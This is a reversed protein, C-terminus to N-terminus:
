GPVPVPFREMFYCLCDQEIIKKDLTLMSPMVLTALQIEGDNYQVFRQDNRNGSEDIIELSPQKKLDYYGLTTGAPLERFNYYEIDEKLRIDAPTDGFSFTTDHPIKVTAVTHFLHMDDTHIPQEPLHDLHLCAEIFETAHSVGTGDDIRGCELTVSPCIKALAMSQVGYPRLFYVVTRSFLTALHFFSNDLKNICAYHPNLGTNNHLDMSIFPNRAKIEALVNQMLQHEPSDGHIRESPWVRNYDLQNDLMRMGQAAAEVNGIFLSISRPLERDYYYKLINQMASLGVTENGHLLISIFLPQKRQGELHVLTPGPLIETLQTAHCDLFRDPLDNTIYLDLDSM